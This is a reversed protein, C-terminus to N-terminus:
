HSASSRQIADPGHLTTIQNRLTHLASSDILGQLAQGIWAAPASGTFDAINASVHVVKWDQTAAILFGHPQIRGPIHIPGRARGLLDLTPAPAGLEDM